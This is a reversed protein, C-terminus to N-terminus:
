KHNGTDYGMSRMWQSGDDGKDLYHFVFVASQVEALVVPTPFEVKCKNFTLETPRIMFISRVFSASPLAVQFGNQVRRLSAFPIKDYFLGAEQHRAFVTQNKVAATYLTLFANQFLLPTLCAIGPNTPDNLIDGANSASIGVYAEIAVIKRDQLEQQTPFTYSASTTGGSPTLLVGIVKSNPSIFANM